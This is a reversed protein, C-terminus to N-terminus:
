RNSFVEELVLTPLWSWAAVIHKKGMKTLQEGNVRLPTVHRM